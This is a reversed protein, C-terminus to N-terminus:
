SNFSVNCLKLMEQTGISFFLLYCNLHSSHSTFLVLLLSKLPNFSFSIFHSLLVPPSCLLTKPSQSCYPPPPLDAGRLCSLPRPICYIVSSSHASSVLFLTSIMRVCQIHEQPGLPPHPHLWSSRTALNLGGRWIHTRFPAFCFWFLIRGCSCM